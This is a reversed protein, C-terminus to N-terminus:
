CQTKWVCVCGKGGCASEESWLMYIVNGTIIIFLIINEVFYDVRHYDVRGFVGDSQM